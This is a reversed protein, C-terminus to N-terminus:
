KIRISKMMEKAIPQWEQKDKRSCNFSFVLTRNKEVLYQQYSYKLIPDRQEQKAPNGNIRSEFEFYVFKKGKIEQVGESIFEVGDFMNKLSAKFFSQAVEVNADPWQTASINVSFDITREENTYAAIPARVSRYRERFDMEDMPRWGLPISATIGDAIKTKVLKPQAFGVLGILLFLLLRGPM